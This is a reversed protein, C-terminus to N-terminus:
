LEAASTVSARRLQRSLWESARGRFTCWWFEQEDSAEGIIECDDFHCVRWVRAATIDVVEGPGFAEGIRTM